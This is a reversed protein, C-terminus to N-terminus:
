WPSGILSFAAWYFPHTLPQGNIETLDPPLPVSGRSGRLTGGSLTVDGRLMALQAQRLADAKIPTQKLKQYFESMLALTGADSVYWQSALVSKVGSQVALGAFGLEADGDGSATKCASLVLLEVLPDDWGLQRMQDLTLKGNEFQIYSNKPSGSTFEAHTALHIIKYPKQRRQKQLNDLTFNQNLFIDGQWPNPVITNLEVAVGPLPSQETFESAGMALVEGDRLDTSDLNTLNCAPVLVISYKEVLFQQGDHLASFPVSRLNKGVCFILLDVDDLQLRAQVPEVFWKYLQQAPELYANEKDERSLIANIGNNFNKATKSLTELDVNQLTQGVPKNGATLLLLQLQKEQPLLWIVAATKGTMQKMMLLKDSIEEATELRSPFDWGFYNEYQKEWTSEVKVIMESLESSSLNNLIAETNQSYSNLVGFSLVLFVALVFLVLLRRTKKILYRFGSSINTFM